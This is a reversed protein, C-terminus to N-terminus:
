TNTYPLFGLNRLRRIASTIQRQHKACTGTIRRSLMKGSDMTFSKALQVNKYDLTNIKDACLRCVKRRREYPRFKKTYRPRQVASTRAPTSTPRQVASTRAPASTPRPTPTSGETQTKNETM